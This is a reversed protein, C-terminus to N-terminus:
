TNVRSRAQSPKPLLQSIPASFVYPINLKKIVLVAILPLVVGFLTGLTAHLYVDNINMFKSLIVRIGSGTLIHMLYIAMSSQGIFIVLSWSKRSLLQSIAIIFFIGSVAIAFKFLGNGISSDAPWMNSAVHLACFLSLSLAASYSPLNGLKSSAFLVGLMLFVINNTVYHMNLASPEEVLYAALCVSTCLLIKLRSGIMFMSILSIFFLAYLFWFQARPAWLLSFVSQFSVSGNTYNSLVVEISGQLISWLLYPYFITDIKSKFFSFKGQRNLSGQIFLGSLFFFLPMHFSYIVNDLFAYSEQNTWIGASELGRIVHGYVVLIIGIAKAVDVWDKRQEMM